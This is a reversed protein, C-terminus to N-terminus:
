KWVMMVTTITEENFIGSPECTSLRKRLDAEFCEKKDGLVPLSAYSTSYLYGILQDITWSRETKFEISEMNRFLSEALYAEFRKQPHVYTGKTGAKRVNGLWARKTDKIVIQWPVDSSESEPGTDGVIALGGGRNTLRHLDQLTQEQDTWHFARAIVTLDVNRIEPAEKALNSSQSRLWKINDIKRRAALKRGEELMEDMPDVAFIQSVFPALRLGIQGTGCGLDLVRSNHGLNFKAVLLDIAQQPYDPRYRAYYRATGAFLNDKEWYSV